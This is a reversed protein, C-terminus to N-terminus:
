RLALAAKLHKGVIAMSQDPSDCSRPYYYVILHEWGQELVEPLRQDLLYNESESIAHNEILALPTRGAEIAAQLFPKGMSLLFKSGRASPDSDSSGGDEPTWPRGDCGFEDLDPLSALLRAQSLDSFAEAFLGTRIKPDRQHIHRNLLGFFQAQAELQAKDDDVRRGLVRQAADSYDRVHLAKPEDWIVGRIPFGTLLQDLYNFFFEQVDPQHVSLYAGLFGMLPQRDPGLAWLDPRTAALISPVKPAGAVLNGWRSPVAWVELGAREAEKSILLYNERAASFDQELFALIVSSIGHDAMWTMDDRIHRPVCTYSHARFYYASVRVM